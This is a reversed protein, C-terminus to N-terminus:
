RGYRRSTADLGGVDGVSRAMAAPASGGSHRDDGLDFRYHDRDVSDPQHRGGAGMPRHRRLHRVVGNADVRRRPGQCCPDRHWWGRNPLARRVRTGAHRQHAIAGSVGSYENPQDKQGHTRTLDPRGPQEVRRLPCRQNSRCGVTEVIVIHTIVCETRLLPLRDIAHDGFTTVHASEHGLALNGLINQGAQGIGLGWDGIGLGWDGIGM